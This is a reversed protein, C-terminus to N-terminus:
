LRPRACASPGTMCKKVMPYFEKLYKKDPADNCMLFQDVLSALSVGNSAFQYGKTPYNFDIYPTNGTCGGFIWPPAGDAFQYGKYGRLKGARSRPLLLGHALIWLFQM